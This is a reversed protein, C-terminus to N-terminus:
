EGSYILPDSDSGPIFAKIAALTQDRFIDREQLLEHEAGQITVLKGARFRQSLAEFYPYPVIKDASPAIVLTPIEVRHLHEMRSVTTIARIMSAIWSATPPGIFLDPHAAQIARNRRYRIPDSTLVNGAFPRDLVDKSFQLAGLGTFHCANALIKLLSNPIGIGAAGVFPACLAMREIRNSLWPAAKLATLAGMSHAVIFFPMKADPLVVKEIFADLDRELDGFRRLHGKRPMPHLRTSGGQGRWDFTAVWLGASTLDGITEYYKEITENRGHLLIVTGQAPSQTARFIAYRLKAGDFSDFFGAVHNDPPLNDSTARLIPPM